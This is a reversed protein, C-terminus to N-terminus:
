YIPEHATTLNTTDARLSNKLITLTAMKEKMVTDHTGSTASPAMGQVTSVPRVRLGVAVAAVAKRRSSRGCFPSRALLSPM